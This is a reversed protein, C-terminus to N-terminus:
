QGEYQSNGEEMISLFNSPAM